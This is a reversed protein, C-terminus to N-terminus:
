VSFVRTTSLEDATVSRFVAHGEKFLKTCLVLSTEEGITDFYVLFLSSSLCMPLRRDRDVLADHILHNMRDVNSGIKLVLVNRVLRRRFAPSRPDRDLQHPWTTNKSSREGCSVWVSGVMNSQWSVPRM